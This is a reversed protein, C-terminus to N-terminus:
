LTQQWKWADRLADRLAFKPRWDLESFIKETDAWVQEIDGARRKGITYNLDVGTVDEFSKVVELVSNGNGTGVNFVDFTQPTQQHLFEIAKVHADALDMVHIYDRIATGDPTNYNDGFVTLQKRIGAATQTVFPVLNAPVGKPLEGILATPHAGIPNFYRLAIIRSDAGSKIHDTLIDECIKKTNGYPSEADQRPTSEKVPLKEPQGYVTCSSSFVVDKCDHNGMVELLTILSLINNKYYKLPKETSEGVAKYAAFHIVGAIDQEDFVRNMFDADNCDGEYFIVASKIIQEIKPIVEKESNSFNDVIVPKFGANHLAVATHSGIYGAGGTVLISKM